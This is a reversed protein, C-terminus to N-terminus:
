KKLKNYVLETVEEFIEIGKNLQEDTVVLPVLIRIVHDAVGADELILGRNLGEIILGTVFDTNPTKTEADTVFEVGVMAGLGRIDGIVDPYKEQLKKLRTVLVEGIHLAKAPFNEEQMIKLIELGSATALANGAYTGGITCKPIADMIAKSTTVASIPIGGGLSKASVLIDPACGADKFYESAFMKGTRACGCQIEDCIMLIGYKDCMNRVAKVWEIPAPVFGGEGQVPEFVFAAIDQPLSKYLILDSELKKIFYAMGEEETLGEPRRYLYPYEGHVVGGVSQGQAIGFLRRSTMATTLATRGHFGGTFAVINHRKTYARAVKVANEIGEAGSTQFFTQNETSNIPALRNLEKALDVYGTHTGIFVQSHFFKAAQDQVAKVVRPDSYGINMVGIGGVWDLYVNGDIDQIMAGEGKEMVFPYQSTIMHPVQVARDKIIEASKAGPLTGTVKPLSTRLM